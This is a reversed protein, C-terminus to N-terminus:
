VGAAMTSALEDNRHGDDRSERQGGDLLHGLPEAELHEPEARRSDL